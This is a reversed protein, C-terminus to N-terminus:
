RLKRWVDTLIELTVAMALVSVSFMATIEAATIV